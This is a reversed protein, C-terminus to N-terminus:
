RSDVRSPLSGYPHSAKWQPDWPSWCTPAISQRKLTQAEAITSQARGKGLTIYCLCRPVRLPLGETTNCIVAPKQPM